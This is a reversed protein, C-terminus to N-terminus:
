EENGEEDEKELEALAKSMADFVEDLYEGKELVTSVFWERIATETMALFLIIFPIDTYGYSALGLCIVLVAADMLWYVKDTTGSANTIRSYVDKYYIFPTLDIHVLGDKGKRMIHAPPDSMFRLLMLMVAGSVVPLIAYMGLLIYSTWGTTIIAGTILSLELAIWGASSIQANTM